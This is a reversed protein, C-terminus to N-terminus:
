TCQSKALEWCVSRKKLGRVGIVVLFSPGDDVCEPCIWPAEIEEEIDGEAYPLQNYGDRIPWGDM